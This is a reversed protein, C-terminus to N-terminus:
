LSSFVAIYITNGKRKRGIVGSAMDVKPNSNHFGFSLNITSGRLDKRAYVILAGKHKNIGLTAGEIQEYFQQQGQESPSIARAQMQAEFQPQPQWQLFAILIGLLTFVIGLVGSLVNGINTVWIAAVGALFVIALGTVVVRNRRRRSHQQDPVQVTM